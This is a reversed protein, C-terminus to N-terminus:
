LFITYCIAHTHEHFHGDKRHALLRRAPLSCAYHGMARTQAKSSPEACKLNPVVCIGVPASELVPAFALLYPLKEMSHFKMCVPQDKCGKVKIEPNPM